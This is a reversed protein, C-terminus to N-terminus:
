AAPDASPSDGAAVRKIEDKDSFLLAFIIMCIITLAFPGAWVYQWNDVFGDGQPIKVYDRYYGSLISGLISGVGYILFILLSQASAKIDGSASKDVYMQAVVFFFGFCFGHLAISAVMLWYPQGIASLGFRTAWAGAGILMTNKIGFKSVALPVLMMAPIEAIQGITMIAGVRSPAAGLYTLFPNECAFYFALMIGILAAVVSLVAFSRNGLLELCELVASKKDIPDTEKAPTPPTHPLTFCYLGYILSVLGSLRICDRVSPPGLLDHLSGLLPASMSKWKDLFGPFDAEAGMVEFFPKLFGLTDSELYAGFSLGAAIWGITGFLRIGPFKSQNGEGVARFALSNTLGMTPMYLNCYLLMGLFVPWFTTFQATMFLVGAGLMHALGLVRETALYRDAVQGLIFPGLVAGMGYVAFMYGTQELTFDLGDKGIYTALMPLWIGFVFYQLFMMLSLRIRLLLSM